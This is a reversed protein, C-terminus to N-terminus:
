VALDFAAFLVQLIKHPQDLCHPAEILPRILRKRPPVLRVTFVSVGHLQQRTVPRDILLDLVRQRSELKLSPKDLFQTRDGVVRELLEAGHQHHQFALVLCTSGRGDVSKGRGLSGFQPFELFENSHRALM